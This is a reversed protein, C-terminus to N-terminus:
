GIWGLLTYIIGWAIASAAFFAFLGWGCIFAFEIWDAKRRSNM